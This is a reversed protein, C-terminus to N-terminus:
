STNTKSTESDQRIDGDNEFHEIPIPWQVDTPVTDIYKSRYDSDQMRCCMKRCRYEPHHRIKNWIDILSEDRVNGFSVPNFDCPNVDGYSTTYVQYYGGFCGSGYQSNIYSQAIVGPGEKKTNWSKSLDRIYQHEEETLLFSTDHIWKGSPVPDFITVEHFGLEHAKEILADLEGNKIKESTAYTSIGTLIGLERVALAGEIADEHCNKTKRLENHKEPNLDDISVMSAYLGADALEKARKKLLAGNTFMLCTGKEPTVHAIIEPLDKRLCPEGGTIVHNFIGLSTADDIVRKWEDTTLEDRSKDIKIDASCHVCNCQCKYTLAMTNTTPDHLKFFYDRIRATIARDGGPSPFPPHYLSFVFAGDKKALVKSQNLKECYYDVFKRTFPAVVGQSKAKLKGDDGIELKLRPNFAKFIIEKSATKIDDGIISMKSISNM